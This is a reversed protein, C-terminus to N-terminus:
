AKRRIVLWFVLAVGYSLPITWEEWLSRTKLSPRAPDLFCARITEWDPFCAKFRELDPFYEGVIGILLIGLGVGHVALLWGRPYEEPGASLKWTYFCHAIGMVIFYAILLGPLYVPEVQASIACLAIMTLHFTEGWWYRAPIPGPEKKLRIWGRILYVTLLLLFALRPWFDIPSEEPAILLNCFAWFVNGAAAPWFINEFVDRTRSPTAPLAPAPLAM